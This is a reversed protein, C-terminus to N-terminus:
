ILLSKEAMKLLFIFTGGLVVVFSVSFILSFVDFQGQLMAHAFKDVCFFLFLVNIFVVVLMIFWYLKM